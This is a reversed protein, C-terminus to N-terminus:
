GEGAAGLRLGSLGLEARLLEVGEDHLLLVESTSDAEGAAREKPRASPSAIADPIRSASENGFNPWPRTAQIARAGSSTASAPARPALWPNRSPYRVPATDDSPM